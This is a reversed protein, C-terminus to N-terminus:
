SVVTLGSSMSSATWICQRLGEKESLVHTFEESASKNKKSQLLKRQTKCFKIHLYYITDEEKASTM